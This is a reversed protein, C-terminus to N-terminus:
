DRDKCARPYYLADGFRPPIYVYVPLSFENKTTPFPLVFKLDLNPIFRGISGTTDNEPPRFTSAVCTTETMGWVQNFAADSALHKEFEYQHVKGLAATGSKCWKVSTLDYQRLLPSALAMLVVPPNVSIDTIKFHSISQLFIELDFRRMVYSPHGAKFPTTHGVPVIAAHFMPM